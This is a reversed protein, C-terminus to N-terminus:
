WPRPPVVLPFGTHVLMEAAALADPLTQPRLWLMRELDIGVQAASQPDLQEGQDVFAAVEGTDTVMKLAALLTAFRGCSGRGTLEVLNGRALGGGLLCDLGPVSTTLLEERLRAHRSRVLESARRVAHRVEAPLAAQVKQASSPPEQLALHPTAM